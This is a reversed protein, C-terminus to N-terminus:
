FPELTGIVAGKRRRESNAHKVRRAETFLSRPWDNTESRDARDARKGRLWRSSYAEDMSSDSDEEDSSWMMEGGDKEVGCRELQMLGGRFRDCCLVMLDQGDNAFSVGGIESFVDVTQKSRFSQADIINIFDAEEAAVLVRKGSGIPSFRLNRVGAM